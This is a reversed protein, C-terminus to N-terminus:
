RFIFLEPSTMPANKCSEKLYDLLAVTADDASCLYGFCKILIRVQDTNISGLVLRFVSRLEM